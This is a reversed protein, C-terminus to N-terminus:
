VSVTGVIEVTHIAGALVGRFRVNRLTRLALDADLVDEYRPMEITYSILHGNQVAIDLRKRVVTEILDIGSQDFPIKTATGALVGFVDETLRAQLWDVTVQVDIFEGQASTGNRTINRGARREYTNGNLSHIYAREAGTLTDPTIGPLEKNAWTIQGGRVDLDAVSGRAVMAADLYDETSPAHYFGATRRYAATQLDELVNGATEALVAADATQAIYIHGSSEVAAALLLISAEVRTGWAMAYWSTDDEASIENFSETVDADGADIRGIILANIRPTPRLASAAMLYAASNTAFGDAAMDTLISSGSYLQQRGAFVAHAAGPVLLPTGFGQRSVASSEITISVNVIDSINTPM